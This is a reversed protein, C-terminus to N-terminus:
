WVKWPSSPTNWLDNLHKVQKYTDMAAWFSDHEYVALENDKALSKLPAKEFICERDESLYKFIKKNSVFFGGNIQDKMRPKEKFSQVLGDKVKLIGFTSYPSVGTLTLIKGKKKHFEYLKNININSLGDGYTLFFDEDSILYKIRAIRGGTNTDLGTDIFTINWNEREANKHFVIPKKKNELNLTFDNSMYEFNLFFEKIMYGKYGLLLIFDNYGYHSYIKMIHWLIPMNGIEILPKPKFETEERLREGKGGCLIVVKM